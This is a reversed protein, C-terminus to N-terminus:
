HRLPSVAPVSAELLALRHRSQRVLVVDGQAEAWRAQLQLWAMLPRRWGQTAATDVATSLLETSLWGAQWLVSAALLRALPEDPLVPLAAAAPRPQVLAQAVPQHWAPLLALDAAVAQGALYRAYAQEAPDADAALAQYAVCPGAALSAQAVACRLLALRALRAPEATRATQRQAIAWEVTAVRQEGNLEALTARRVAGATAVAWDPPPPTSSCAALGAAFLMWSSLRLRVRM